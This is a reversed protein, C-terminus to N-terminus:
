RAKLSELDDRVGQKGADVGEGKTVTWVTLFLIKVDQKLSYNRVYELDYEIKQFVTLGNRGKAAALGTIGPLVRGREREEETMNTWYETVWPRPGIFSMQGILINFLQPLEDISTRRIFRGVRTYRDGCSNDFLDNDAVMSRFKCIMFRRGNKGTREQRFFVPGPSDIKIAMAVVVFLPSLVLIMAAAMVFDLVRKVIGYLAFHIARLREYTQASFLWYKPLVSVTERTVSDSKVKKAPM